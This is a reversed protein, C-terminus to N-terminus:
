KVAEGLELVFEDALLSTADPDPREEHPITYYSGTLTLGESTKELSIKLFGHKSESFADLVVDDFLPNDTTFNPDTTLALSHLEDFGGAGCVIFPVTSGDSYNKSFRQYNHVHGSLVIDPKIGTEMFVGDLFNIMPISAGHNIDASYPAHHICVIVAKDPREHDAKILTEVFWDRQEFTVIGFKPVNSHLGIITALPTNLSWYINPQVMSKRLAGGSFPVEKPEKACFVQNFAELSSYPKPNLTNVDSDHNGAIAFIPVPYVSYPKFFQNYYQEAEGFHYVIDGLHFLFKPKDDEDHAAQYQQAMESAILQQFQPSKIGGTDGAMHFVLKHTSLNPVIDSLNLQYPYRGTPKPLPQFKFSDDPQNKKIVPKVVKQSPIISM